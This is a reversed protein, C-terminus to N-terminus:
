LIMYINNFILIIIFKNMNIIRRNNETINIIDCHVFVNAALYIMLFKIIAINLIFKQM